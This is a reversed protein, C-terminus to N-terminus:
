NIKNKDKGNEVEVIQFKKDKKVKKLFYNKIGHEKAYKNANEERFFTKPRNKKKNPNYAGARIGGLRFPGKNKTM